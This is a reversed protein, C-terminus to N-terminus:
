LSAKMGVQSPNVLTNVAILIEPSLVLGGRLGGSLLMALKSEPCDGGSIM